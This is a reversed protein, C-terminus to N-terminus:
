SVLREAAPECCVLVTRAGEYNDAAYRIAAAARHCAEASPMEQATFDHGSWLVFLLAAEAIM